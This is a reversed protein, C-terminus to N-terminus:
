GRVGQSPHVILHSPGAAERQVGLTHAPRDSRLAETAVKSRECGDGRSELAVRTRTLTVERERKGLEFGGLGTGSGFRVREGGTRLFDAPQEARRALPLKRDLPTAARVLDRRRAAVVLRLSSRLARPM